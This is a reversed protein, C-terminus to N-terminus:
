YSSFLNFKNKRFSVDFSGGYGLANGWKATFSGNLGYRINKKLVINIIGVEGEADYRSSPNTIVEVREIMNGQLLRLADPSGIGTLGSPRGDILIRVNETGRLSVVGEPDLTVSPVNNLIDVASGGISALDTGVNF